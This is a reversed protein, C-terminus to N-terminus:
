AEEKIGLGGCEEMLESRGYLRGAEFAVTCLTLIAEGAGLIGVSVDLAPDVIRVAILIRSFAESTGLQRGVKVLQLNHEKTAEVTVKDLAGTEKVADDISYTM